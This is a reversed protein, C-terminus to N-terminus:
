STSFPFRSYSPFIVDPNNRRLLILVAQQEYTVGISGLTRAVPTRHCHHHREQESTASARM